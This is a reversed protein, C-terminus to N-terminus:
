GFPAPDGADGVNKPGRGAGSRNSRSRGFKTHYCVSHALYFYAGVSIDIFRILVHWHLYNKKIKDHWILM